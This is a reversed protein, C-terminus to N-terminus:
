EESPIIPRAICRCNFDQGPQLWKGDKSSYAGKDLDYVKGDRDRHNSNSKKGPAPRVREDKATVWVAQTIGLKQYRIKNSMGNFNALQNRAIFRAKEEQKGAEVDYAGIVQEFDAGSAMVRLTNNTFYTIADDRQKQVWLQTELILANMEPSLGEQKTMEEASIGIADQTNNYFTKQNAKTLADLIKRVEKNVRKNSFRKLLKSRARRSLTVFVNAYNGTQADEFKSGDFKEITGKNLQNLTQNKFQKSMAKTMNELLKAFQTEYGRPYPPPNVPTPTPATIKKAM